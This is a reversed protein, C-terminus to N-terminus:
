SDIRRTLSQDSYWLIPACFWRVTASIVVVWERDGVIQIPYIDRPHTCRLKVRCGTNALGKDSYVSSAQITPSPNDEASRVHVAQLADYDWASLPSFKTIWFLDAAVPRVGCSLPLYMDHSLGTEGCCGASALTSWLSSHLSVYKCLMHPHLFTGTLTHSLWTCSRNGTLYQSSPTQSSRQYGPSSGTDLELTNISKRIPM